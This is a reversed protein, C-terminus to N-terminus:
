TGFNKLCLVRTISGYELDCKLLFTNEVINELKKGTIKKKITSSCGLEESSSLSFLSAVHM